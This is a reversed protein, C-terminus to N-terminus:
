GQLEAIRSRAQAELVLFGQRAARDRISELLRREDRPGLRSHLLDLKLRQKADPAESLLSDAQQLWNAAEDARGQALLAEIFIILAQVQENPYDLAAFRDALRRSEREAIVTKGQELQLRAQDLEVMLRHASDPDDGLRARATKLLAEADAMRGDTRALASGLRDIASQETASDLELNQLTAVIQRTEETQGRDLLLRGLNLLSRAQSPVIGLEAFADAAQRIHNEAIALDGRQRYSLGLNLAVRAIDPRAQMTEFIKLARQNLEIAGESDRNAGALGALNSLAIAQGREDAATEFAALAREFAPEAEIRRGERALLTGTNLLAIGEGRANGTRRFYGQALELNDLASEYRGDRTQSIGLNIHTRALMQPDGVRELHEIAREIQAIAEDAQGTMELINGRVVRVRAMGDHADLSEYLADAADLGALSEPYNGERFLIEARTLGLDARVRPSLGDQAELQDLSAKAEELRGLKFEADAAMLRARQRLNSLEPAEALAEARRAAALRRDQDDAANALRARLLANLPKDPYTADLTELASEAEDLRRAEILAQIWARSIRSDPHYRNLAQYREAARDVDFDLAASLAEWELRQQRPWQEARSAVSALIERAAPHNGLAALARALPLALQGPGKGDHDESTSELFDLVADFEHRELLDQARRYDQADPAPQSGPPDTATFQPIGLLLGITIVAVAIAIPVVPGALRETLRPKREPRTASGIFQYGVGHRNAILRYDPGQDDLAERLAAITQRLTSKGVAQEPWGARALDESSVTTPAQEVLCALIRLMPTSLNVDGAPGKLVLRETDLEMGEFQFRVSHRSGRSHVIWQAKSKAM